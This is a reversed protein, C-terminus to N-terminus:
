LVILIFINICLSVRAYRNNLNYIVFSFEIQLIGIAIYMYLCIIIIVTYLAKINMRHINSKLTISAILLLM